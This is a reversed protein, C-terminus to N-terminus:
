VRNKESSSTRSRGLIFRTTEDGTTCDQLKGEPYVNKANKLVELLATLAARRADVPGTARAELWARYATEVEHMRPQDLWCIKALVHAPAEQRIVEEAFRRFNLSKDVSWTFRGADAPLLVQIRYSYPDDDACDVCTPDACIPLLPDEFGDMRLLLNEILLMGELTPTSAALDHRAAPPMGLLAALRQELGSVNTTTDWLAEPATLSHNYGLGRDHSIKPYGALFGCKTAIADAATAGPLSSTVAVYDHFREAFRAILHDLFRNRRELEVSEGAVTPGVQTTLADVIGATAAADDDGPTTAYVSKWAEFSTVAQYFYTQRMAPDISFLDKVRHLQRCYNAMIQDFFLLYAKLQYAQAKRESSAGADLGDAGLGYIAPFHNQFSHYRDTPRPAGAPVPLDDRRITGSKGPALKALADRRAAVQAEDPFVPMGRKTTILRSSKQDLTPQKGADVPVLWKNPLATTLGSPTVLLDRVAQVGDIDMVIRIVDSLRIETRIDAAALEDDDIFGCDLAPGDFIADATFRTGDERTRELMEALSYSRVTPAFYEQVRLQIAAHVAAADAGPRLEIEACVSFRQVPVSTVDLFDECLNRNAQLRAMAAALVAPQDAAAVDDRLDILARYLGQISVSRDSPHARTSSLRAAVTDAYLTTEVPLIWANRIEPLDILLKRYDLLTLPANPLLARATPFQEKMAEVGDGSALLDEVPFSARYGLDTLAYCLLELTTVGPDHLNHDTWIRGSLRRVHALGAAHLAAQDLGLERPPSTSITLRELM